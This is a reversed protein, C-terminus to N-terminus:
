PLSKEMKLKAGAAKLEAITNAWYEEPGSGYLLEWVAISLYGDLEGQPM